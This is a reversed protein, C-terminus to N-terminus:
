LTDGIAPLIVYPVPRKCHTKVCSMLHGLTPYVTIIYETVEDRHLVNLTQQPTSGSRIVSAVSQLIFVNRM